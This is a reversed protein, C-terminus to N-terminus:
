FDQPPREELCAALIAIETSALSVPLTRGRWRRLFEEGSMKMRRRAEEDIRAKMEEPTIDIPEADYM